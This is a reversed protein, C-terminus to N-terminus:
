NQGACNVVMGVVEIKRWFTALKQRSLGFLVTSDAKRANKPLLNQKSSQTTHSV